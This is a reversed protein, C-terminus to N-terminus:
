AEFWCAEECLNKLEECVCAWFDWMDDQLSYILSIIM